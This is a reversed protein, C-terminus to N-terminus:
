ISQTWEKRLIYHKNGYIIGDRIVEYNDGINKLVRVITGQQLGLISKSLKLYRKM